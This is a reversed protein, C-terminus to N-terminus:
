RRVKAELPSSHHRSDNIAERAYTSSSEGIRLVDQNFLFVSASFGYAVGVCEDSISLSRALSLGSFQFSGNKAVPKM